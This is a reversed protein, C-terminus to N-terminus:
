NFSDYFDKKLLEKFLNSTYDHAEELWAILPDLEFYAQQQVATQWIIVDNLKDKKQDNALIIQLDKAEKLGFTEQIYFNKLKGRPDFQNELKINFNDDIFQLWNEFHYNEVDVTDIYRLMASKVPPWAGYAAKLNSLTKEITPLYQRKWEYKAETENITLIGPGIQVVPWENGGTWFQYLTQHPLMESPISPDMKRKVVPFESKLAQRLAGIALEFKPDYFQNNDAKELDWRIEFIVEQLPANPLKM